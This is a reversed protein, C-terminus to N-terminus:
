GLYRSRNQISDRPEVASEPAIRREGGIQGQGSSRLGIGLNSTTGNTAGQM